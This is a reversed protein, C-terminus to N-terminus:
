APEDDDTSNLTGSAVMRGTEPDWISWHTFKVPEMQSWTAAEDNARTRRFWRRRVRRPTGFADLRIYTDRRRFWNM